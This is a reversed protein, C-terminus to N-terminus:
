KQGRIGYLQCHEIDAELSAMRYCLREFDEWKLDGFPLIQKKTEVPPNFQSTPPTDLWTLPTGADQPRVPNNEM